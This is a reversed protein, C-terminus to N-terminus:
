SSKRFSGIYRRFIPKYLATWNPAGADDTPSRMNVAFILDSTKLSTMSRMEVRTSSALTLTSASPNVTFATSGAWTAM